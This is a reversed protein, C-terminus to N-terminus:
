RAPHREAVRRPLKATVQRCEEPIYSGMSLSARCIEDARECESRDNWELCGRTQNAIQQRWARISYSEVGMSAVLLILGVGEKLHGPSDHKGRLFLLALGLGLIGDRVVSALPDAHAIGVICSVLPVAPVLLVFPAVIWAFVKLNRRSPDPLKDQVATAASAEGTSTM